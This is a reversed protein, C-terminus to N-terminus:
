GTREHGRQHQPKTVDRTLSHAVVPANPKASKSGLRAFQDLLSRQAPVALAPHETKESL